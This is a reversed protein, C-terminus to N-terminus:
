ELHVPCIVYCSPVSLLMTLLTISYFTIRLVHAMNSYLTTRVMKPHFFSLSFLLASTYFNLVLPLVSLSYWWHVSFSQFTLQMYLSIIPTTQVQSTFLARLILMSDASKTCTPCHLFLGRFFAIVLFTSQFTTSCKSLSYCFPSIEVLSQEQVIFIM